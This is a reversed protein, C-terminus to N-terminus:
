HERESPCYVDEKDFIPFHKSHICAALLSRTVEDGSTALTALAALSLLTSEPSGDAVLRFGNPIRSEICDEQTLRDQSPGDNKVQNPSLGHKIGVRLERLSDSFYAGEQLLIFADFPLSSAHSYTFKELLFPLFNDDVRYSFLIRIPREIGLTESSSGVHAMNDCAKEFEKQDLTSKIEAILKVEEWTAVSNSGQSDLPWIAGSDSDHIVLDLERPHEKGLRTTAFVNTQVSFRKQVWTRIFDAVASERLAGKASPLKHASTREYTGLLDYYHGTLTKILRKEKKTAM